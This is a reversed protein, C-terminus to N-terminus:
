ESGSDTGSEQMASVVEDYLDNLVQALRYEVLNQVVEPDDLDQRSVGMLLDLNEMWTVAQEQAFEDCFERNLRVEVM